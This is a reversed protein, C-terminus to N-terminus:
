LFKATAAWAKKAADPAAMKRLDANFVELSVPGAYGATKLAGLFARIDIVGDGPLLRQGDQIETLPVRPADNLHALVIKDAPIKALHDWSEGAANCHFCDVLLGANPGVEAALELMAGPTFIFEHPKMRRLHYPAVFEMGFRLGHDALMKAAPKLRDVHFTWNEMFPLDSTPMIWTACSDINLEKALLAQKDLNALGEKTKAADARWDYPLGWGGFKLKRSAFLDRLAAPGHQVGYGLEVDAGQFGAEAALQVFQEFPLGGGATGRNLCIYM